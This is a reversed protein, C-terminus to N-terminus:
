LSMLNLKMFDELTITIIEGSVMTIMWLCEDKNETLIEIFKKNVYYIVGSQADIMQVM